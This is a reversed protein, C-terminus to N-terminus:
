VIVLGRWVRLRVSILDLIEIGLVQIRFGDLGLAEVRRMDQFM